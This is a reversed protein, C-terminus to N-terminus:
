SDKSSEKLLERAFRKIQVDYLVLEGGVKIAMLSIRGILLLMIVAIIWAFFYSVRVGSSTNNTASSEESDSTMSNLNQDIRSGQEIKAALEEIKVPNEYLGWAESMVSFALWLGILLLIFGFARVIMMLGASIADSISRKTDEPEQKFDYM